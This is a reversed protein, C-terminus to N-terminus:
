KRDLTLAYIENTGVDRFVIPVDDPDLSIWAGYWGTQHIDSFAGGQVVAEAKGGKLPFRYIGPQNREDLSMFYIFKGDHSWHHYGIRGKPDFVNWTRTQLDFVLVSKADISQGAIFRGDPSWLPSWFGEPRRPLTTTKGTAVEYIRTDIKNTNFPVYSFGPHASYVVKSGDPSWDALSQPEDVGSLVRTPEGGQSSIVYIRDVGTQTNDTFLIKSGDPAWRPNRPYFPPRTLQLSGSGDRNARWLIGDPFSVYAIYRGDRSFAPMEASIGNLYPEFRDSSRNYRDLEGRLSVGQAFIKKGDRSPPPEGWLLPTSALLVPESNPPHLKGRREDVAWIEALPGFGPGKGLDGGALFVFFQGDPTWRGCCKKIKQHWGPLFEHLNGGNSSMEWITSGFRTFRITTGNPSWNVSDKRSATTETSPADLRLLLRPEGSEIGVTYVDGHSTM